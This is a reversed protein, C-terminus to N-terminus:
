SAKAPAAPSASAPAGCVEAISDRLDAAYKERDPLMHRDATFSFTLQGAYSGVLHILGM